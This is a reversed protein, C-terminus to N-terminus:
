NASLVRTRQELFSKVCAVHHDIFFFAIHDRIRGTNLVHVNSNVGSIVFILHEQHVLYVRECFSEVGTGQFEFATIENMHRGKSGPVFGPDPTKNQQKCKALQIVMRILSQYIDQRHGNVKKSPCLLLCIVSSSTQNGELATSMSWITM